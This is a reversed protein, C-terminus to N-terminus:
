PTRMLAHEARPRIRPLQLFNESIQGSTKLINRMRKEFYARFIPNEEYNDRSVSPQATREIRINKARSCRKEAVVSSLGHTECCDAAFAAIKKAPATDGDPGLEHIDKRLQVVAM